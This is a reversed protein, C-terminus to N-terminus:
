RMFPEIIETTGDDYEILIRFGSFLANEKLKAIVTEIVKNQEDAKDNNEDVWAPKYVMFENLFLGQLAACDLCHMLDSRTIEDLITMDHIKKKLKIYSNRMLLTSIKKIRKM